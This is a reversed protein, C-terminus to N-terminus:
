ATRRESWITNIIIVNNNPLEATQIRVRHIRNVLFSENWKIVEPNIKYSYLKSILRKYPVKDFSKELDTYSVDIQGGSELSEIWM